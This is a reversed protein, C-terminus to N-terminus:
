TKGGYMKLSDFAAIVFGSPNVMTWKWPHDHGEGIGKWNVFQRADDLTLYTTFTPTHFTPEVTTLTYKNKM